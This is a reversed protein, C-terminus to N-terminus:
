VGDRELMEKIFQGRTIWGEPLKPRREEKINDVIGRNFIEIKGPKRDFVSYLKRGLISLDKQNILREKAHKRAFNSLYAYSKTLHMMLLKREQLVAELRWNKQNDLHEIVEKSWNWTSVLHEVAGKRWTNKERNTSLM